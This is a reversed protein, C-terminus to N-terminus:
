LLEGQDDNDSSSVGHAPVMDTGLRHYKKESVFIFIVILLLFITAISVVILNYKEQEFIGGQGLQPLPIPSNPLNYANLIDKINMLQIIPIGKQGMQIIVGRLPYNQMLLNKTLGSPILESNITHGLSAIGGGVNIYAKIPMGNSSAEYLEVRKEINKVLNDENILPVNNRELAKIILERGKPSLGQGIDFGGGISGAISRSKFVQANFLVTEMDLWTFYPDNAGYNSAGLSSIIIPKLKLAEIAAITSINLAPFSGTFAVAVYDGEQVEADKLYQVIIAAINPNTSSLKADIYGRDTTILSYEQGILATENPDNVEDIFVGEKLRHNKITNAAEQSLRAAMMKENYWEQKVNVKSNEVAIFALLSLVSLLGLVINSKARFKHM